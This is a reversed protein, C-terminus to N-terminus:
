WRRESALADWGHSQDPKGLFNNTFELAPRRDTQPQQLGAAASTSDPSTSYNDAAGAGRGTLRYCGAPIRGTVEM